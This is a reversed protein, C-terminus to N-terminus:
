DLGGSLKLIGKETGNRRSLATEENGSSQTTKSRVQRLYIQKKKGCTKGDLQKREGKEPLASEM